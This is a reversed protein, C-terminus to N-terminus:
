HPVRGLARIQNELERRDSLIDTPPLNAPYIEYLRKYADPTVKRMVVNAGCSFVDNKEGANLVGLSTTAPLNARPLLLRALAVARKTLGTSGSASGKLPTQPHPIFPGIGAMDCPIDRLLLLDQGITELTQGPLGVMFGGGTEYGLGKLIRLCRVREELTGCPHLRRYLAPDATEHKLLYRDAGCVRLYAYASKEMEGCSVTVAMGTKKVEQILRGLREPTYYPDEGSQMVLTRYGAQAARRATDVIEEETMRYRTVDANVANLGCYRCRRRCVNSFELIARLHVVDGVQERRVRDAEEYVPAFDPQGLLRALSRADPKRLIDKVQGATV